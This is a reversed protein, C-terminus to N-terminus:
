FQPIDSHYEGIKLSRMYRLINSSYCVCYGENPALIHESRQGQKEFSVTKNSSREWFNLVTHKESNSIDVSLYLNKWM